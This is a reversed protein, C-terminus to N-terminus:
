FFLDPFKAKDTDKSSWCVFYQNLEIAQLIKIDVAWSNVPGLNIFYQM